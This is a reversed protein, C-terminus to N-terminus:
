LPEQVPLMDEAHKVPAKKSCRDLNIGPIASCM